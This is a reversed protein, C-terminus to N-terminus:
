VMRALVIKEGAPRNNAVLNNFYTAYEIFTAPHNFPKVEEALKNIVFPPLQMNFPYSEIFDKPEMLDMMYFKSLLFPLKTENFAFITTPTNMTIGYM